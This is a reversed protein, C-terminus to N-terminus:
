GPAALPHASCRACLQPPQRRRFALPAPSFSGCGLQLIPSLFAIRKEVDMVEGDSTEVVVVGDLSINPDHEVIQQREAEGLGAFVGLDDLPPPAAEEFLMDELTAATM